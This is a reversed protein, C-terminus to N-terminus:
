EDRCASPLHRNDIDDSGCLWSYVPLAEADLGVLLASGQLIEHADGGYNIIILSGDIAVSSVYKGRLDEPADLGAAVNHPPFEGNAEHYEVIASRPGASLSLGESVQARITYDQYAPLAIAALIGALPVILYLMPAWMNTGGRSAIASERSADDLGKADIAAIKSEARGMYLSNAFIPMVILAVVGYGLYAILTASVPNMFSALIASLMGAVIPLGLIYGLAM